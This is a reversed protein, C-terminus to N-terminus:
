NQEHNPEKSNTKHNYLNLTVPSQLMLMFGRSRCNTLSFPLPDCWGVETDEYQRKLGVFDKLNALTVFGYSDITNLLHEIVYFANDIKEFSMKFRYEVEIMPKDM